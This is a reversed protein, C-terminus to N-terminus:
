MSTTKRERYTIGVIKRYAITELANLRKDLNKSLARSECGYLLISLIVAKYLHIKTHLTITRSKWFFELKTIETNATRMRTKIEKDSKGDDNDIGSIQVKRSDRPTRHENNNHWVDVETCKNVMLKSKESNVEMGYASSCAHIM